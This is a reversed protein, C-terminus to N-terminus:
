PQEELSVDVQVLEELSMQYYRAPAAHSTRTLHLEPCAPLVFPLCCLLALALKKM